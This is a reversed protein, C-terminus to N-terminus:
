RISMPPIGDPPGEPLLCQAMPEWNDVLLNFFEKSTTIDRLCAFAGMLDEIGIGTPSDGMMKYIVAWCDESIETSLGMLKEAGIVKNVCVMVKEKMTQEQEKIVSNNRHLTRIRNKEQESLIM